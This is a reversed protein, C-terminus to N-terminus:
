ASGGVAHSGVVRRSRRVRVVSVDHGVRRQLVSDHCISIARSDSTCKAIAGCAQDVGRDRVTAVILDIGKATKILVSVLHIIVDESEVQDAM